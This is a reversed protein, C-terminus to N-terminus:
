GKASNGQKAGEPGPELGSDQTASGTGPGAEDTEGQDPPTASAAVDANGFAPNPESTPWGGQESSRGGGFKRKRREARNPKEMITM